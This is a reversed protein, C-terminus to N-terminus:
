SPLALSHVPFKELEHLVAPGVHDRGVGDDGHLLLMPRYVLSIASGYSLMAFNTVELSVTLVPFIDSIIGTAKHFVGQMCPSVIPSLPRSNIISGRHAAPTITSMTEFFHNKEVKVSEVAILFKDDDQHSAWYLRWVQSSNPRETALFTSTSFLVPSVLSIASSHSANDTVDIPTNANHIASSQISSVSNRKANHGDTICCSNFDLSEESEVSTDVRNGSTKRFELPTEPLTGCAKLFKAKLLSCIMCRM